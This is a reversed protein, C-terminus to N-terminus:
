SVSGAAMLERAASPVEGTTRSWETGERTVARYLTDREVPIRGAERILAKLRTSTLGQPTTAGAMHTIREELVTGDIDNVGANLLVQSLLVGQMIWFSKINSINDLVM